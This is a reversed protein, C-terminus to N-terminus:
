RVERGTNIIIPVKAFKSMIGSFLKKKNKKVKLFNGTFEEPIFLTSIKKLPGSLLGSAESYDIAIEYRCNAKYLISLDIAPIFALPEVGLFSLFEKKDIGSNWKNIIFNVPYGQAKLKMLESLKIGSVRCGTPFPDIIILIHDAIALLPKVSDNFINEGVDILTVPTTGSAYVLKLMKDYDWEKIEKRRDDPVIWSIGYFVYEAKRRIRKGSSIEHPYSYFYSGSDKGDLREEIGMWNFIVPSGVPPEIVSPIIGLNSLYKALNLTVTTSGACRSLGSIIILKKGLSTYVKKEVIKTTPKEIYRVKPSTNLDEETNENISDSSVEEPEPIIKGISSIVESYDDDFYIINVKNKKFFKVAEGHWPLKRDVVALQWKKYLSKNKVEDIDGIFEEFGIYPHGKFHNTIRAYSEKINLCCIIYEM